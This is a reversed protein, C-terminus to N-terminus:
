ESGDRVEMEDWRRVFTEWAEKGRSLQAEVVGPFPHDVECLGRLRGIRTRKLSLRTMWSAGREDRSTESKNSMSYSHSRLHRTTPTSFKM